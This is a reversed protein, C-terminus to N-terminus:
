NCGCGGGVKGGNAGAAGERYAEFNTEFGQHKKEALEMEADNLYQKQYPKVAACAPLLLLGLLLVFLSHLKSKM